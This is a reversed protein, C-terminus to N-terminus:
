QSTDRVCLVETLVPWLFWICTGECSGNQWPGKALSDRLTLLCGLNQMYDDRSHTKKVTSTLSLPFPRKENTKNQSLTERHLGPQSSSV